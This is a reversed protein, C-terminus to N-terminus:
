RISGAPHKLLDNSSRKGQFFQHLVGPRPMWIPKPEVIEIVNCFDSHPKPANPFFTQDGFIYQNIQGLKDAIPSLFKQGVVSIPQGEINWALYNENNAV